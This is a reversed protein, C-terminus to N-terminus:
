AKVRPDDMQPGGIQPAEPAPSPVSRIAPPPPPGEAAHAAMFDPVKAPSASPTEAAAAAKQQRNAREIATYGIVGAFAALVVGAMILPVYNLRAAKKRVLRAPSQTSGSM